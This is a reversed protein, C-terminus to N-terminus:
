APRAKQWHVAIKRVFEARPFVADSDASCDIKAKIEKMSEVFKGHAKQKKLDRKQQGENQWNLCFM